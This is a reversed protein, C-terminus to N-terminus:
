ASGASSSRMATEGTVSFSLAQELVDLLLDGM